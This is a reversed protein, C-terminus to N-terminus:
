AEGAPKRALATGCHKCKVADMLILERCDPCRKHTKYNPGPRGLALVLIMTLLPSLLISLLFWSLASRGRSSAIAAVALSWLLWGFVLSVSM